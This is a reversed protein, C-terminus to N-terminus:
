NKYLNKVATFRRTSQKNHWSKHLSFMLQTAKGAAEYM